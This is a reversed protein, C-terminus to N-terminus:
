NDQNTKGTELYSNFEQGAVHKFDSLKYQTKTSLAVSVISTRKNKIFDLEIIEDQGDLQYKMKLDEIKEINNESKQLWDLINRAFSLGKINKIYEGVKSPNKKKQYCVQIRADTFGTEDDLSKFAKLWEINGIRSVDAKEVKVIIEYINQLKSSLQNYELKLHFISTISKAIKYEKGIKRFYYEIDSLRPGAHNYEIMIVPDSTLNFNIIFNTVEVFEKNEPKEIEELEGAVLFQPAKDKLLAIRGFSRMGGSSLPSAILVLVRKENGQRNIFRDIVKKNQPFDSENFKALVDKLLKSSHSNTGTYPELKLSAYNFTIDVHTPPSNAPVSM